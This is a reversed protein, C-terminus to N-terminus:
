TVRSKPKPGSRRTRVFDLGADLKASVVRLRSPIREREERM